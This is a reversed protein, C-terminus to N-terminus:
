RTTSDKCYEQNYPYSVPDPKMRQRSDWTVLERSSRINQSEIVIDDLSTQKWKHYQAHM